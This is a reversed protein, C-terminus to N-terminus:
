RELDWPALNPVCALLTRWTLYRNVRGKVRFITQLFANAQDVLWFFPYKSLIQWWSEFLLRKQSKKEEGDKAQHTKKMNKKGVVLSFMMSFSWLKVKQEGRFFQWIAMALPCWPRPWCFKQSKTWIQHNWMQGLSVLCWIKEPFVVDKLGKPMLQFRNALRSTNFFGPHISADVM